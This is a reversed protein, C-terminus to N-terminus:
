AAGMAEMIREFDDNSFFEVIIKGRRGSKSVRIRVKTGLHEALRTELTRVHSPSTAGKDPSAAPGTRLRKTEGNGALHEAQRVTLGKGVIERALSMRAAEGDLSLIARAHGATIRTSVLLEQISQPLELLRVTNAVAPRSMGLRAAVQEQTLSFKKMLMAYARACEVPNLDDRQINEVLALGLMEDDGAERVVAQITKLGAEKTARLRREGAILEFGTPTRRVVIPQLLGSEKISAALQALADPDFERRPQYANARVKEVPLEVFRRKAPAVGTPGSAPKGKPTPAPAPALAPAPAPAVSVNPRGLLSALGRSLRNSRKQASPVIKRAPEGM